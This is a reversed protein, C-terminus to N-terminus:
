KSKIITEFAKISDIIELMRTKGAADLQLLSQVTIKDVNSKLSSIAKKVGEKTVSLSREYAEMINREDEMVMLAEEDNILKKLTRIDDRVKIIPEDNDDIKSMWGFFRHLNDTNVFEKKTEDWGLWNRMDPSAMLEHFVPAMKASFQDGFEPDKKYLQMAVFTNVRRKVQQLGMGLRDSIESFTLSYKTNLEHVLESEEFEGWDKVKTVHRLGMLLLYSESDQNGVQDYVVVDIKKNKLIDTDINGVDFGEAYDAILTKLTALRRNGEIVVFEKGSEGIPKVLINDVKLFGNSKFSALLDAIGERKDGDTIMNMTRKQVLANTYDKEEVFKYRAHGHLRFNNPDLFIKDISIKKTNM